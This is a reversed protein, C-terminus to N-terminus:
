KKGRNNFYRRVVFRRVLSIITFCITITFNKWLPIEICHIKNIVITAFISIIFGIGVDVLSEVFSEKTSQM